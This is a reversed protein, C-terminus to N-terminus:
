CLAFLAAALAAGVEFTCILCWHEGALATGTHCVHERQRVYPSRVSLRCLSLTVGRMVCLLVCLLDNTARRPCPYLPATPM